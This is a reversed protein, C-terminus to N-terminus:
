ERTSASEENGKENMDLPNTVTKETASVIRREAGAAYPKDRFSELVEVITDTNNRAPIVMGTWIVRRGIRFPAAAIDIVSERVPKLM